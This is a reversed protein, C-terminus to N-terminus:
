HGIQKPGAIPISLHNCGLLYPVPPAGLGVVGVVGVGSGAGLHVHLPRKSEAYLVGTGSRGQVGVRLSNTHVM